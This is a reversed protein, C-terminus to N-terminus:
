AAGGDLVTRAIRKWCACETSAWGDTDVLPSQPCTHFHPADDVVDSLAEARKRAADWRECWADREAATADLADSLDTLLSSVSRGAANRSVVLRSWEATLRGESALATITPDHATM